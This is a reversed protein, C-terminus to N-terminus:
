CRSHVDPGCTLAMRKSEYASVFDTMIFPMRQWFSPKKQLDHRCSILNPNKAHVKACDVGVPCLPPPDPLEACQQLDYLLMLLSKVHQHTVEIRQRRALQEIHTQQWKAQTR